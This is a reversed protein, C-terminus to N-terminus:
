QQVTECNSTLDCRDRQPTCDKTKKASLVQKGRKRWGRLYEISHAKSIQFQRKYICLFMYLWNRFFRPHHDQTACLLNDIISSKM